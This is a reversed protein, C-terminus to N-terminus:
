QVTLNTPPKPRVTKAPGGPLRFAYVPGDVRNYVFGVDGDAFSAIRFRSFVGNNVVMNEPVVSNSSSTLKTWMWTGTKWDTGQLKFEYVGDGSAYYIFAQRAPSWEWGHSQVKEPPTGGQKLAVENGEPNKLDVAYVNSSNRFATVVFLDHVPDYAAVSNTAQLKWPYNTWRGYTGDANKANPDFKAFTDSSSGGEVWFVDRSSDYVSYGGSYIKKGANIPSRRWTKTSLDFLHAVSVSTENSPPGLEDQGKLVIFSNTAPHYDVFDFTHPPIASGDPYEGNPYPWNFPGKYPNSLRTWKRTELDFAYVESGYYAAHGGGYAVLSGFKGLRKAYAGGNWVEIVASQGENGAWPPSNPYNPNANPDKAPDVDALTNQSIAQWTGPAISSLWSPSSSSVPPSTPPPASSDGGGGGGSEPPTAAFPLAHGGPFKIPQTSVIVEDFYTYMPPRDSESVRPTDYNMLEFRRYIESNSGLSANGVENLILRPTGGYPAAWARVTSAGPNSENYQVHVEIVTWGDLNFPVGGKAACSNPWGYTFGRDYLYSTASTGYSDVITAGRTPGYRSWFECATAPSAPTGTDIAPQYAYETGVGPVPHNSFTRTQVTLGNLMIGPFGLFKPNVVTVQGAGYQEINVLKLQGDGGESRWALTNTPLFVAFQLYFETYKNGQEGDLYDAWSGGNKSAAGYTTIRLANSGSLNISSELGIENGPLSDTYGAAANLLESKSAYNFTNANIVGAATSRAKWDAERDAVQAGAGGAAGLLALAALVTTGRVPRSHMEPM